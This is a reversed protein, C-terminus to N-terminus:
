GKRQMQGFLQPALLKCAAEFLQRAPEREAPPLAGYGTVLVQVRYSVPEVRGAPTLWDLRRRDLFRLPRQRWYQKETWHGQEDVTSFWLWGSSVPERSMEVAVLPVSSNTGEGAQREQRTIQWGQARYCITVDHYGRFPYDLAVSAVMQGKQYHWVQSFIGQTEVKHGPVEANLRQWNGIQEPMTFTAGDRLASESAMRVAVNQKQHNLWGCGLGAVGLLGFACGAVQGWRPALRARVRVTAVPLPVAPVAPVAPDSPEPPTSFTLFDLFEDLSVILTLYMAVLVLGAMEHRWGSLIDIGHSYQLWTGLTIRFVNGLLVGALICPLCVVIRWVRRRRWMLYFLGAALTFLVSNIGSCAEEVLLKQRPLEIVNGSLVHIVGLMDLLGSSWRVALGRLELILEADRGRPPHIITLVLVLAPVTARLLKGGGIWWVVGALGLVAAVSALWPSWLETAVAMICFSLGMLAASWAPHGSELPRPVERLRSWALFGAGALAMPFFQYHPRSWLNAFFELLLPTFGFVLLAANRRTLGTREAITPERPGGGAEPLPSRARAEAAGAEDPAM